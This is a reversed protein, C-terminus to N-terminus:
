ELVARYFLLPRNTFGPDTYEVVGTVNTVSGLNLWDLMNSSGEVRWSGAPAGALRLRVAGGEQLTISEISFGNTAARQILTLAQDAVMVVGTRQLPTFNGAVAYTVAGNGAGSAGAQLTIWHEASTAVWSCNTTTIVNVTGTNASFGHTRSTPSLRFSCEFGDQTIAYLQGDVRIGGARPSLSFNPAVAYSVTGNGAGAGSALITIWEQTSTASWSCASNVSVSFSNTTEGYGHSRSSPSLTFACAVVRQTITFTQDGVLLLGVRENGSTNADIAYNVTGGSVGTNGSLITIWPNTNQLTWRCGDSTILNVSNTTTAFGHARSTPSLRYSCDLGAQALAFTQGDITFTASRANTDLNAPVAYTVVGSGVGNSGALITVWPISNTVAWPCGTLSTVSVTGTAAGASLSANGPLLSYTCTVPSQSITLTQDAVSVMATRSLGTPNATVTYGVAGTGLGGAGSVITLWSNPNQVSWACNTGAQVTFYNSAAGNGHNRTTPSLRYSCSNGAQTIALPFGASFLNGSRAPGANAEVTYTVSGSGVGNTPSVISIWANTNQVTWACGGVATVSVHGTGSGFGHTAEAPATAYSCATLSQSVTFSQGAIVVVGTRTYSNPNAPVTYGVEANGAGSSTLFTVWENTNEVTWACDASVSVTIFNSAAGYGHNRSDPAVAYDCSAGNQTLTFSQGDVLVVGVRANTSPNAEVAYSLLNSGTGSLGTTFNIWANTNLIQWPCGNSTTLILTGSSAAYGHPRNTPSLKYSCGLGQQSITLIEDAVLVSGTRALGANVELAYSVAASGTVNTPTLITIWHHANSVSWNCDPTATLNVLGTVAGFAHSQKNTSISYACTLGLQSIAFSKNAVMIVGSRALSSPNAPVSYIISGNGTGSSGSTITVWANPNTVAWACGSSTTLAILGSGGAYGFTRSAPSIDYNCIVPNQAITLTQDAVVLLGTRWAPNPNADVRYTVLGTSMGSANTLLSIWSNANTVTWACGPGAFVSFDNTTAGYGHNRTTTSLSFTCAARAAPALALLLLLLLAGLKTTTRKTM